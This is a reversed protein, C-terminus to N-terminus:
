LPPASNLIVVDVDNTHTLGVLETTLQLRIAGQEAEPIRRELLVAVDLDSDAREQNRATSGFLYGLVAGNEALLKRIAGVQTNFRDAISDNM